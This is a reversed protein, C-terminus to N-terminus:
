IQGRNPVITWKEGRNTLQSYRRSRKRMKKSGIVTQSRGEEGGGGKTGVTM